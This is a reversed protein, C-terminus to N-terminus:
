MRGAQGWGGGGPTEIHLVDGPAAHRSFCGELQSRSGDAFVLWQRGPLGAQGGALGPPGSRRRNSLLSVQMSDVFRFVRIVGDGGRHEGAGGSEIRFGFQELRVPYRAELVEPDTLLSNTMHTHVASAGDFDVGAGAGGCITEYYQRAGDGFTLNNMTGQSAAQRAFAALLCDVIAQSTEVNGGVVAAGPLPSLMSGEPIILEVPELCGDNLPIDDNVLCRLVYLVAARTVSRPANTNGSRQLSTGSFDITGQGQETIEVRVHIEGGDDMVMMAEGGIEGRLSESVCAAANERMADMAAALRPWGLEEAM